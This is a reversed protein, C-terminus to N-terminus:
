KYKERESFGNIKDGPKIIEKSYRLLPLKRASTYSIPFAMRLMAIFVM